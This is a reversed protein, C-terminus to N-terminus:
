LRLRLKLANRGAKQVQFPKILRKLVVTGSTVKLPVLELQGLSVTKGLTTEQEPPLPPLPVIRRSAGARRGSDLGEDTATTAVAGFQPRPRNRDQWIMWLLGLTVASAYSSLLLMWWSRTPAAGLSDDGSMSASQLSGSMALPSVDVASFAGAGSSA